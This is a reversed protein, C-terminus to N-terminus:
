ASVVRIPALVAGLKRALRATTEVADSPALDMPAVLTAAALLSAGTVPGDPLQQPEVPKPALSKAYTIVKQPGVQEWRFDALEGEELECAVAPEHVVFLSDGISVTWGDPEATVWEVLATHVLSKGNM